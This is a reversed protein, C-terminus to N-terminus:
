GPLTFYSLYPQDLNPSQGDNGWDHNGLSPWFRNTTAGAGYTGKYPYIFDHYYQGVDTDIMTTSLSDPYANDGMTIVFDPNWSHVLNAVNQEPQFTGGFSAAGGFDGIVGFTVPTAAPALRDELAELAIRSSRRNRPKASGQELGLAKRVRRSMAAGGTRFSLSVIGLYMSRLATHFAFSSCFFIEWCVVKGM